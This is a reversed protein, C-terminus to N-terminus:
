AAPKLSPTATGNEEVFPLLPSSAKGIPEPLAPANAFFPVTSPASEIYPDLLPATAPTPPPGERVDVSLGAAHLLPSVLGASAATEQTEQGISEPWPAPCFSKGCYICFVNWGDEHDVVYVHGQCAPCEFIFPMTTAQATGANAATSGAIIPCQPDIHLF